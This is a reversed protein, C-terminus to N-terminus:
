QLKDHVLAREAKFHCRVAISVRSQELLKQLHEIESKRSRLEDFVAHYDAKLSDLRGKARRAEGCEEDSSTAAAVGNGGAAIDAASARLRAHELAKKAATIEAKLANARTGLEKARLYKAKLDQVRSNITCRSPLCASAHELATADLVDPLALHAWDAHSGATCSCWAILRLLARALVTCFEDLGSCAHAHRLLTRGM